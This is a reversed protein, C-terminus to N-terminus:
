GTPQPRPPEDDPVVFLAPRKPRFQLVKGGRKEAILVDFAQVDRAYERIVNLDDVYGKLDENQITEPAKVLEASHQHAFEVAQSSRREVLDLAQQRRQVLQELTADLYYGRRAWWSLRMDVTAPLGTRM